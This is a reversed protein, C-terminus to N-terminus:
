MNCAIAISNETVTIQDTTTGADNSAIFTLQFSSGVTGDLKGGVYTSGGPYISDSLVITGDNLWSVTIPTTGGTVSGQWACETSGPPIETPGSISLGTPTTPASTIVDLYGGLDNEISIMPSYFFISDEWGGWLVGALKINSNHGVRRFTPSGSDGGSSGGRVGTQCILWYNSGDGQKRDVCTEVVPGYTWGTKWGVKHITDGTVATYHSDTIWFRGSVNKFTSEWQGSSGPRAIHGFSWDVSDHYAVLAADSNRCSDTFGPPAGDPDCGSL